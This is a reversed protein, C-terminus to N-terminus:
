IGGFFSFAGAGVVWMMVRYALGGVLACVLATIACAKARGRLRESRGLGGLVIPAIGSFVVIVLMFPVGGMNLAGSAGAYVLSTLAAVVGGVLTTLGGMADSREGKGSSLVWYLAAGAPIATGLYGTPLLMTMWAARGEMIYSEGAMFSILAGFVMGLVAFVKLAAGHSSRKLLILYVLISCGLLLVLVFEVFIGSTPHSLANLMRFPHSLHLVSAFAGVALCVIAVVGPVFGDRESRHTFENLGTFFFLWGALGTLLTFIALPWQIEM